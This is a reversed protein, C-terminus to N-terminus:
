CFVTPTKSDLDIEVNADRYNNSCDTTTYYGQGFTSSFNIPLSTGYEDIGAFDDYFDESYPKKFYVYVYHDYQNFNQDGDLVGNPLKVVFRTPLNVEGCSGVTFTQWNEASVVELMRESTNQTSAYTFTPYFWDYKGSADCIMSWKNIYSQLWAVNIDITAYINPSNNTITSTDLQYVFRADAYPLWPASFPFAALASPALVALLLLPLLILRGATGSGDARM